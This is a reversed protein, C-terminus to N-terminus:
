PSRLEPLAECRPWRVFRVLSYPENIAVHFGYDPPTGGLKGDIVQRLQRLRAGPGV